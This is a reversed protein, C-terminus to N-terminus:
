EDGNEKQKRHDFINNNDFPPVVIERRPVPAAEDAPVLRMIEIATQDSNGSRAPDVQRARAHGNPASCVAITAGLVLTSAPPAFRPSLRRYVVSFV